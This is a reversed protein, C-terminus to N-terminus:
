IPRFMTEIDIWGFACDFLWDPRSPYEEKLMYKNEDKYTAELWIAKGLNSM